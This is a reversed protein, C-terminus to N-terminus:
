NGGLNSLRNLTVELSFQSSEIQDSPAIIKQRIGLAKSFEDKAEVFRNQDFYLKGLHQHYAALLSESVPHIDMFEKAQNFLLHAKAFEQKWQHVHALRLWNQVIRTSRPHKTSLAVAKLLYREAQNLNGLTRNAMGLYELLQLKKEVQTSKELQAELKKCFNKWDEPDDPM